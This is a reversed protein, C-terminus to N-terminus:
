SEHADGCMTLLAVSLISTWIVNTTYTKGVFHALLFFFQTYIAINRTVDGITIITGVLGWNNLPQIVSDVPYIM